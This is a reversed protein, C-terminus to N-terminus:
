WQSKPYYFWGANALAKINCLSEDSYAWNANKFSELRQEVTIMRNAFELLEFIADERQQKLNKISELWSLSGRFLGSQDWASRNGFIPGSWCFKSFRPGIRIATWPDRIPRDGDM